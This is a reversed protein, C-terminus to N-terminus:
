VHVLFQTTAQQFTPKIINSPQNERWVQSNKHLKSLLGEKFCHCSCSVSMGSGIMHGYSYSHISIVMFHIDSIALSPFLMDKGLGIMNFVGEASAQGWFHIIWCLVTQSIATNLLSFSRFPIINTQDTNTINIGEPLKVTRWQFNGNITLKGMFIPPDKWNAIYVEVLPNLM